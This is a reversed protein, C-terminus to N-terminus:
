NGGIKLPVSNAGSCARNETKSTPPSNKRAMGIMSFADYIEEGFLGLNFTFSPSSISQCFRGIGKLSSGIPLPQFM